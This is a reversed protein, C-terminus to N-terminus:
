GGFAIHEGLRDSRRGSLAVEGPLMVEEEVEAPDDVEDDM